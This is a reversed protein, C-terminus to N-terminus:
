LEGGFQAPSESNKNGKKSTKKTKKEKKRSKKTSSSSSSDSDDQGEVEEKKGTSMTTADVAPPSSSLVMIGGPHARQGAPEGNKNFAAFRPNNMLNATNPIFPASWEGDEEDDWSDPMSVTPDPITLPMNENYDPHGGVV